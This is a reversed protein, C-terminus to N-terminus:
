RWLPYATKCIGKPVGHNDLPSATVDQHKLAAHIFGTQRCLLPSNLGAQFGGLKM